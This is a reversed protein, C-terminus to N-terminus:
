NAKYSSAILFRMPFLVSLNLSINQMKLDDLADGIGALRNETFRNKVDTINNLGFRYSIDLSIRINGVDYSGGVGGLVGVSSNIFLDSAGLIIEDSEFPNQFGSALDDGTITVAKNANVLTAYFFGAQVFPRIKSQLIDYKLLLPLELYDLQHDQAYNLTLINNPNETDLWQFDNSYVFRQRRYNPQFSISFGKHYFTIDVGSLAGLKNFSEYEKDYIEPSFGDASSFATYRDGPSVKSLNGGFKFGLWWQTQLFPDTFGSKGSKRTNPRGKQAALEQSFLLSVILILFVFLYNKHM